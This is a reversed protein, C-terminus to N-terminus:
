ARWATVIWSAAAFSLGEPGFYPEIAARLEPVVRALSPADVEALARSLPGVDMLFRVVADLEAGPMPVFPADFAACAVDTFGAAGLVDDLARPDALSFPGPEGPGATEMAIGSKEAVSAPVTFWPNEDAGRWCVFALRGGARVARALNRFAAERDDFFMVGFRSFALDFAGEAFPHTAADADVLTIPAGEGANAHARAAALMASSVDVGTVAGTAGVRRALEVTTAGCGCGIDLAREGLGPHAARLARGGFVRLAGDLADHHRVWKDGTEGDWFAIQDANGQVPDKPDM